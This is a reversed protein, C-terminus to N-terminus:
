RDVAQRRTRDGIGATRRELRDELRRLDVIKIEDGVAIAAMDERARKRLM